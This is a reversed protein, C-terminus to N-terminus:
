KVLDYFLDWTDRTVVKLDKKEVTMFKIWKELFQCKKGLFLEWLACATEVEVNKYGKETAFGFTFKYLKAFAAEDRLEPYLKSKLIDKWSSVNDCGLVTCGKIFEAQKFEGMAQAECYQAVLIAVIDEQANVGM